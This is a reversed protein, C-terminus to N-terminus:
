DDEVERFKQTALATARDIGCRACRSRGEPCGEGSKWRRIWSEANKDERAKKQLNDSAESRETRSRALKIENNSM